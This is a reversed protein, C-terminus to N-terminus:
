GLPTGTVCNEGFHNNEMQKPICLLVSCFESLLFLYKYFVSLPAGSAGGNPLLPNICDLQISISEATFSRNENYQDIIM